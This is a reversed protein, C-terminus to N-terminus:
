GASCQRRTAPRSQGAAAAAGPDPHLLGDVRGPQRAVVALDLAGSRYRRNPPPPRRPRRAPGHCPRRDPGRLWAYSAKPTRAAPHRLRRAGPRLAPPLGGGVRLQGAAVLRLLGRVDVGEASRRECRARHPRRPLRDPGPRRRATPTRVDDYACGSETVYIPPLAAGYRDRLGVLLERLGDPVVPWGFATTPYGHAGVITSRCRRGDPPRAPHPDPQLLQRRARRPARRHHRPRRRPRVDRTASAGVPGSLRARAAPRHVPPQAPRRVGDAAALDADTTAPAPWVPTCNNAILVQGRGRRACRRWRWATASCSTTPSRAARRVDAGPGPRAHGLAYGSSWTCSRSTSRSGCAHGPRRAARGRHRRVRRVPRRHRPEALRRRGAAGAAPGLPVAHRGPRHRARAARRGAPRLLGPGGPQGPGRGRAPDRPWAISFRYANVGLGAMLAVDEPWRHYHDCRRRRHATASGAPSTPSPTGSPRAGATRTSPARSRTPPPPSAGSSGAPFSPMPATTM